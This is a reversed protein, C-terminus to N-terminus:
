SPTRSVRCCCSWAWCVYMVGIRKHDVSTIWESWLYRWHDARTLWGLVAVMVMFVAAGAALPIPEGLPVASWDLKGLM